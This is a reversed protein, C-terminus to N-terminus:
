ESTPWSCTHCINALQNSGDLRVYGLFIWIVIKIFIDVYGVGIKKFVTYVTVPYGIKIFIKDQKYWM